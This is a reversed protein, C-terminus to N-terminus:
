RQGALRRVAEIFYIGLLEQPVQRLWLGPGSPVCMSTAGINRCADSHAHERFERIIQDLSENVAAIRQDFTHVEEATLPGRDEPLEVIDDTM